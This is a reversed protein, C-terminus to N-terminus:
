PYFLNGVLLTEIRNASNSKLTVHRKLTTQSVRFFCSVKFSETGKKRIATVAAKMRDPDWKERGSM